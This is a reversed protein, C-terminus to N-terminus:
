NVLAVSKGDPEVVVWDHVLPHPLIFVVFSCFPKAITNSWLKDGAKSFLGRVGRVPVGLIQVCQEVQVFPDRTQLAVAVGLNNM